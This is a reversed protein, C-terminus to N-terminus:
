EYHICAHASPPYHVDYCINLEDVDSGFFIDGNKVNKMKLCSPCHFAVIPASSVHASRCSIIRAKTIRSVATFFSAFTRIAYIDVRAHLYQDAPFQSLLCSCLFVVCSIHQMQISITIQQTHNFVHRAEARASIEDGRCPVGNSSTIFRDRPATHDVM